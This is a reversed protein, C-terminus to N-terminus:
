ESQTLTYWGINEQNGGNRIANYGWDAQRTQDNLHNTASGYAYYDSDEINTSWPQYCNAGHNYGSTGWGFFDRDITPSDGLQGNDGFCQWQNDAFKWYAPSESGIYQLNGQSFYVKKNASVSFKGNIAGQPLNVDMNIVDNGENYFKNHEIKHIAPRIGTYIGTYVSGATGAALEDQPLVIAWTVNDAGKAPMTILGDGDMSYAFGDNEPEVNPQKSFDVTVKNNMGTISIAATSPTNVVFKMLACKNKLVSSYDTTSPDYNENSVNASIVPRNGSDTQDSIVVSCGVKNEGDMTYQPTLNGLFYFKLPQGVTADTSSIDGVFKTGNYELEGVYKNGSAVIVRDGGVPKIEGSDTDVSVRSGNSGSSSGSVDLTITVTEGASAPTEQKKCQAMGMLLAAAIIITSLKKM